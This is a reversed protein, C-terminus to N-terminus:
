VARELREGLHQVTLLPTETLVREALANVLGSTGNDDDSRIQLAILATKRLLHCKLQERRESHLAEDFGALCRVYLFGLLLDLADIGINPICEFVDDLVM